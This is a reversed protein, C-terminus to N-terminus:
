AQGGSRACPLDLLWVSTPARNIVMAARSIPKRSVKSQEDPGCANKRAPVLTNVNTMFAYIPNGRHPFIICLGGVPPAPMSHPSPFM